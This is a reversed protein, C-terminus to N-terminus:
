ARMGGKKYGSNSFRLLLRHSERQMADELKLCRAKFERLKERLYNNRLHEKDLEEILMKIMRDKKSTYTVQKLDNRYDELEKRLYLELKKKNQSDLRVEEIKPSQYLDPTLPNARSGDGGHVPTYM